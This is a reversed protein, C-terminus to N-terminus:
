GGSIEFGFSNDSEWTVTMPVIKGEVIFDITTSGDLSGNTLSPYANKFFTGDPCDNRNKLLGPLPPTGNASDDYLELPTEGALTVATLLGLVPMWALAFFRKKMDM